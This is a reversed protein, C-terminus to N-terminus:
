MREDCLLLEGSRKYRRHIELISREVLGNRRTDLLLLLGFGSTLLPCCCLRCMGVSCGLIGIRHLHVLEMWRM